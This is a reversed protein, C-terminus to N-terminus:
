HRNFKRIMLVYPEFAPRINVMLM